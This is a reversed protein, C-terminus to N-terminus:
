LRQLGNLVSLICIQEVDTNKHPIKNCHYLYLVWMEKKIKSLLSDFLPYIDKNTNKLTKKISGEILCSFFFLQMELYKPVGKFLQAFFHKISQFQRNNFSDIIKVNKWLCFLIGVLGAKHTM